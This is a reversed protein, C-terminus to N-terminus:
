ITTTLINISRSISGFGGKAAQGPYHHGGRGRGRPTGNVTRETRPVGRRLKDLTALLEAQVVASPLQALNQYLVEADSSDGNAIAAVALHLAKSADTRQRALVETSRLVENSLLIELRRLTNIHETHLEWCRQVSLM